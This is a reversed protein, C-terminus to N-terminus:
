KKRLARLAAFRAQKKEEKEREIKKLLALGAPEITKPLDFRQRKAKRKKAVAKGKYLQKWLERAEATNEPTAKLFDPITLDNM